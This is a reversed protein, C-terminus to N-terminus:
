SKLNQKQHKSTKKIHNHWFFNKLFLFFNNEHKGLLVINQFIIIVIDECM